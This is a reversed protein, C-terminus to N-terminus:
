DRASGEQLRLSYRGSRLFSTATATPLRAAGADEAVLEDGRYLFLRPQASESAVEIRYEAATTVTLPVEVASRFRLARPTGDLAVPTAATSPPALPTAVVLGASEDCGCAAVGSAALFAIGFGFRNTADRYNM